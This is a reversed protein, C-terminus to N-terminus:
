KEKRLARRSAKDVITFVKELEDKNRSPQHGKLKVFKCNLKDVIEFFAKYLNHLNLLEGRKARFGAKEIRTRRELLRVINQSDTYVTLEFEGLERKNLAHLLIQLEIKSSSTDEFGQLEVRKSLNDCGIESEPVFLFAGYGVKSEVNVSGDTFLLMKEKM